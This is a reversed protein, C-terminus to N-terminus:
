FNLNFEFFEKNEKYFQSDRFTRFCGNNTTFAGYKILCKVTEVCANNGNILSFLPTIGYENTIDPDAGSKLLCEVAEVNSNDKKSHICASKLAKGKCLNITAGYKLLCQITEVSSSKNSYASALMLPTVFFKGVINPDANKELLFEVTKISSTTHSYWSAYMLATFGDNDQINPDAGYELLLKVTEFTSYKNSNLSAIMLPTWGEENHLNVKDPYTDLYEKLLNFYDENRSDKVLFHILDNGKSKTIKSWENHLDIELESNSDKHIINDVEDM